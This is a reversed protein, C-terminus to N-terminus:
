FAGRGGSGSSVRARALQQVRLVQGKHTAGDDKKSQTAPPSKKKTSPEEPPVMHQARQAPTLAELVEAQDAMKGRRSLWEVKQLFLDVLKEPDSTRSTWGPSRANGHISQYFASRGNQKGVLAAQLLVAWTSAAGAKNGISSSAGPTERIEIQSRSSLTLM